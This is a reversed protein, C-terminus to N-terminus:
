AKAASGIPLPALHIRIVGENAEIRPQGSVMHPLLVVRRFPGRPIEAHRYLLGNAAKEGTRTGSITLVNGTVEVLVDGRTAGPVAVDVLIEQGREIVDIPPSFAFPPVCEAVAPVARSCADLEAFRAWVIEHTNVGSPLPALSSDLAPLDGGTLARYIARVQDQMLEYTQRHM